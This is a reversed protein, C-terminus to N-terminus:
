INADEAQTTQQVAPIHRRRRRTGFFWYLLGFFLLVALIPVLQGPSFTGGGSGPYVYIGHSAVFLQANNDAGQVLSTVPQNAPLGTALQGWNQGNDQSRLVGINTSIYVVNAQTADLLVASIHLGALSLQSQAWHQGTDTSRYFGHATGALILNPNDPTSGGLALATIGANPPLGNSMPQWRAGNDDSRYVADAFAAWLQKLNPDYLLSTLSQTPLGHNISTWQAGDDISTFVGSHATGVYITHPSNADFALATYSDAPLHAVLSWMAAANNSVYLGTSTAAYLKQGLTDFALASIALPLPLDTSSQKWTQGADTSVFVGNQADGAYIDRLHHPDVALVQLHQNQLGEAQWHGGGGSFLGSNSACASLVFSLILLLFGAQRPRFRKVINQM